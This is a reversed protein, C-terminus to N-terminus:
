HLTPRVDAPVDAAPAHHSRQLAKVYAVVLWRDVPEILHGYGPMNRVGHTVTNFLDGVALNRVREDHLNSPTVWTGEQLAEAHRDVMGNGHGSYGHCTSCYINFRQQGRLMSAETLPVEPPIETAFGPQEAVNPTVPAAPPQVSLRVGVILAAGTLTGVAAATSRRM